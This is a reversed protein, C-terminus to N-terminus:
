QSSVTMCDAQEPPNFYRLFEVLARIDEKKLHSTRGHRDQPNFETFIEELTQARGDHLYPESRRLGLLSPTDFEQQQSTAPRTGVDYLVFQGDGNRKGSDTYWPPPHCDACGTKNSFFVERGKEILPASEPPPAPPNRPALSGIYAALADLDPDLGANSDGLWRHMRWRPVFWQGGMVMRTFGYTDQIEDLHADLHLPATQLCGRLSRTDLPGERFDWQRGDADGDPHCVACSMWRDKTLRKDTATGFLYRGWAISQPTPDQAFRTRDLVDGTAADLTVIEQGTITLLFLRRGADDLVLAGPELGVRQAHWVAFGTEKDIALVDDSGASALYVMREDVAVEVPRHPPVVLLDPFYRIAVRDAQPDAVAVAPFVTRDFTRGGVVTDSRTQPAYLWGDPGMTLTRCQNLQPPAERRRLVRCRDDLVVVDGTRFSVTYLEGREPSLALCAPRNISDSKAEVNGTSADLRLVRDGDFDAVFLGRGDASPLVARPEGPVDFRTAESLSAADLVVVKSMDALAAYVRRGDPSIAVSGVEGGTRATAVVRLEQGGADLRVVEGSWPHGAILARSSSSFALLSSHPGAQSAAVNGPRTPLVDRSRQESVTSAVSAPGAPVPSGTSTQAFVEEGQLIVTGAALTERQGAWFTMAVTDFWAPQREFLGPMEIRTDVNPFAAQLKEPDYVYQFTNDHVSVVRHDVVQGPLRVLVNVETAPHGAPLHGRVILSSPPGARSGTPLDFAIPRSGKPLVPVAFTSDVLGIGSGRPWKEPPLLESITGVSTKGWCVGEATVLWVGPEAAVPGHHCFVGTPKAPAKFDMQNGSPTVIKGEVHGSVPPWVVGAISLRDGVELVAGPAVAGFTLFVDYRKGGLEVLPGCPPSGSVLGDFPPLVRAGRRDDDSLLVLMSAYAGYHTVGSFIDRFVGGGYNMKVDGPRDGQPGDGFQYGYPDDFFWYGTPVMDESVQSRVGVGPRWSTTYFYGWQDVDEPKISPPLGSHTMSVYPLEGIARRDEPLLHRPYLGARGGGRRIGPWRRELLRAITGEPDEFTLNPFLSFVMTHGLWAVDGSEYPYCTHGLDVHALPNRRAEEPQPLREAPPAVFRNDGAVFWRARWRATPSRNGREGHVVVSSNPTVVVSAGRRSAMWLTGDPAAHRATVDCVYEGPQDFEITGDPLTPVFVGWRNAKGTIRKEVLRARESHPYHRWHLEVEAPVAPYIRVQPTLASDPYLPTGPEPFVDLDLLRAVYVDYTGSLSYSTGLVDHISGKLRILHHGYERFRYDFAGRGALHYIDSLSPNGYTPPVPPVIRGRIVYDPRLVSLDNQGSVLAAPGLTETRGGPTTVTVELRGTGFDFPIASAPIVPPPRDTRSALPLYPDLPYAIPKGTYADDRPIILKDPMFVNRPNIALHDRDERAITGRSGGPGASGLLLCALRPPAPLGVKVFGVYWPSGTPEGADHEGAGIGLVHADLGYWGPPIEAPVELWIRQSVTAAGADIQWAGSDEAHCPIPWGAGGPGWVKHGDPRPEAMLDNQTEIGLGTPTLIHSASLRVHPRQNGQADFLSHLGLAVTPTEEPVNRAVAQSGSVVSLRVDLHLSDGPSVERTSLRATGFYWLSPGVKKVFAVSGRASEGDPRVPVITGPSTTFHDRVFEFPPNPVEEPGKAFAVHGETRFAERIQPPLEEGGLMNTSIQLSSGPPAFLRATFSGDPRAPVVVEDATRLNVIRVMQARRDAAAGASGVVWAQGDDDPLITIRRPDPAREVRPLRAARWDAYPEERPPPEEHRPREGLERFREQWPVPEAGRVVQEGPDVWSAAVVVAWWVVVAAM